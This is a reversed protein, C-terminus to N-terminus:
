PCTPSLGYEVRLERLRKLAEDARAEADGATGVSRDQTALTEFLAAAATDNDRDM